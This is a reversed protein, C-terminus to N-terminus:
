PPYLKRRHRCFRLPIASHSREKRVLLPPFAVVDGNFHLDMLHNSILPVKNNGITCCIVVNNTSNNPFLKPLQYQSWNFSKDYYLWQKFFPRYSASKINELMFAEDIGKYCHEYLKQDWKIKTDDSDVMNMTEQLTKCGKCREKESNYFDITENM